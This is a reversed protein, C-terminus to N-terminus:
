GNLGGNRYIKELNHGERIERGGARDVYSKLLGKNLFFYCDPRLIDNGMLSTNHTTFIMQMDSYTKIISIIKEALEFHYYADFDDMFLLSIRNFRKIWFYFLEAASTGSSCVQQFILLGNDHKEVLIKKNDPTTVADLKIDINCVERLFRNFDGILGNSIIWDDLMTSSPELGIFSNDRISRFWLMHSVFDMIVKVPSDDKLAANNAIYRLISLNGSLYEFNLNDGIFGDRNLINFHKRRFDYDYLTRGNVILLERLANNYAAKHYEFIYESEGILFDYRFIAEDTKQDVNLFNGPNFAIPDCNFDTLYPVINFLAIGLNSKGSGNPGYIGMKTIIGDTICEPTFRYDRVDTFDITISDKFNRFGKVTFKALRAEMFHM